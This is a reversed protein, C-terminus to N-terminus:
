RAYRKRRLSSAQSSIYEIENDEIFSAIIKQLQEIKDQPARIPRVAGGVNVGIGIGSSSIYEGTGSEYCFINFLKGM